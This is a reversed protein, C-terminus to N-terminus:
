RSYSPRSSDRHVCKATVTFFFHHHGCRLPNMALAPTPSNARTKKQFLLPEIRYQRTCKEKARSRLPVWDRLAESQVTLREWKHAARFGRTRRDDVELRSLGHSPPPYCPLDPGCGRYPVDQLQHTIRGHRRPVTCSNVPVCAAKIFEPGPRSLAASAPRPRKGSPDSM